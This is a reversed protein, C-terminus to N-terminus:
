KKEDYITDFSIVIKEVNCPKTYHNIYSSFLVLLGNEPQIIMEKKTYNNEINYKCDIMRYINLPNELILPSTEENVVPYYVGSIVSLEHRHPFVMGNSQTINFWSSSIRLKPIGVTSCYENLKTSFVERESLFNNENLLTETNDFYSTIGNSLLPENTYIKKYNRLNNVLIENNIEDASINYLGIPISFAPIVM